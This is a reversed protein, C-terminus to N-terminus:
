KGGGYKQAFRVKVLIEEAAATNVRVAPLMKAMWDKLDPDSIKPKEQEMKLLLHKHGNIMEQM